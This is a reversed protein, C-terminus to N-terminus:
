HSKALKVREPISITDMGLEVVGRRQLSFLNRRLKEEEINCYKSFAQTTIHVKIDTANTPTISYVWLKLLSQPRLYSTDAFLEYPKQARLSLYNLYNFLYVPQLQQQLLALYQEKSVKMLSVNGIARLSYPLNRNMGFLSAAGLLSKPGLVFTISFDAAKNRWEVEVKGTIVYLLGEAPTGSAQILEGDGINIFEVHTKFLFSSVQDRSIGQFLPLEMIVDYMTDAM